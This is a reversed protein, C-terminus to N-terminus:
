SLGHISFFCKRNSVSVTGHSIKNWCSSSRIIVQNRFNSNSNSNNNNNNNNNNNKKNKKKLIMSHM